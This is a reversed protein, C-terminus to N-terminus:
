GFNINEKFSLTMDLRLIDGNDDLENTNIDLSILYYNGLNSTFLVLQELPKIAILGTWNSFVSRANYTIRAQVEIETATLNGPQTIETLNITPISNIQFKKSWRINLVEESSLSLVSGYALAIYGM